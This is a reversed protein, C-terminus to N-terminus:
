LEYFLGAPDELMTNLHQWFVKQILALAEGTLGGGWVFLFVDGDNERLLEFSVAAADQYDSNKKFVRPNMIFERRRLDTVTLQDDKWITRGEFFSPMVNYSVAPVLKLRPDEKKVARDAHVIGLFSSLLSLCTYPHVQARRFRWAWIVSIARILGFFFPKKKLYSIAPISLISPFQIHSHADIIYWKIHNLLELYTPTKKLDARVAISKANLNIVPPHTYNSRLDFIMAVSLDNQNSITRLTAYILTLIIMQISANNASAISQLHDIVKPALNVKALLKRDEPEGKPLFYDKNMKLFPAGALRKQWFQQNKLFHDSELYAKEHRVMELSNTRREVRPTDSIGSNFHYAKMVEHVFADLSGYDSVIHPLSVLLLHDEERRKFVSVRIHPTQSLDFEGHLIPDALDEISKEREADDNSTLDTFHVQCQTAKQIQMLPQKYLFSHWLADHRRSVINVAQQFRELFFPGQMLFAACVNSTKVKRFCKLLWSLIQTNLLPFTGTKSNELSRKRGYFNKIKATKLLEKSLQAISPNDIIRRVSVPENFKKGLNQAVAAAALSHGGIEYFSHERSIEDKDVGLVDSWVEVLDQELDNIPPIYSTNYNYLNGATSIGKSNLGALNEM